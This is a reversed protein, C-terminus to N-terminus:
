VPAELVVGRKPYRLAARSLAFSAKREELEDRSISFFDETTQIETTLLEGYNSAHSKGGDTKRVRNRTRKECATEDPIEYLDYDVGGFKGVDTRLGTRVLYGFKVLDALGDRVAARGDDDSQTELHSLIVKWNDPKSLLYALIGRAKWSLRTDGLAENRIRTFNRDKPARYTTM